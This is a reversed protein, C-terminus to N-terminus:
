GAVDTAARAVRRFSSSRPRRFSRPRSRVMAIGFGIIFSIIGVLLQAYPHLGETWEAPSRQVRARVAASSRVVRLRLLSENMVSRASLVVVCACARFWCRRALSSRPLAPGRPSSPALLSRRAQVVIIGLGATLAGVVANGFLLLYRVVVLFSRFPFSLFPFLFSRLRAPVFPPLSSLIPDTPPSDHTPLQSHVLLLLVSGLSRDGVISRVSSVSRRTVIAVSRPARGFARRM